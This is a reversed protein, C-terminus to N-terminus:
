GAAQMGLSWLGALWEASCCWIWDSSMGEGTKEGYGIMVRLTRGLREAAQRSLSLGCSPLYYSPLYNVTDFVLEGSRTRVFDAEPGGGALHKAHLMCRYWSFRSLDLAVSQRSAACKMVMRKGQMQWCWYTMPRNGIRGRMRSVDQDTPPPPGPQIIWPPAELSLPSTAGCRGLVEASSPM